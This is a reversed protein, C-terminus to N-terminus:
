GPDDIKTRSFPQIVRTRGFVKVIGNRGEKAYTEKNQGSSLILTEISPLRKSETHSGSQFVAKSGKSKEWHNKTEIAYTDYDSTIHTNSIAPNRVPVEWLGDKFPAYERRQHQVAGRAMTAVARAFQNSEMSVGNDRHALVARHHRDNDAKAKLSSRREPTDNSTEPQLYKQDYVVNM